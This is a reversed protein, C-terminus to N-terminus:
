LGLGPGCGLMPRQQMKDALSSPRILVLAVILFELLLDPQSMEFSSSLAAEVMVGGKANRGVSEQDGLSLLNGGGCCITGGPREQM